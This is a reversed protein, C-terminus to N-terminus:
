EEHLEKFEKWRKAIIKMREKMAPIKGYYLQKMNATEDKVFINYRSTEKKKSEFIEGISDYLKNVREIRKENLQDM